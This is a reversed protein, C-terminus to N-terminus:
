LNASLLGVSVSLLSLSWLCHHLPCVSCFYFLYSHLSSHWAADGAPAPWGAARGGVSRGLSSPARPRAAGGGSPLTTLLQLALTSTASMEQYKNSSRTHAHTTNPHSLLTVWQRAGACGGKIILEVWGFLSLRPLVTCLGFEWCDAYDM